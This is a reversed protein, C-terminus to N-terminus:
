PLMNCINSLFTETIDYVCCEIDYNEQKSDVTLTLVSKIRQKYDIFGNKNEPVLEKPKMTALSFIGMNSVASIKVTDITEEFTEQRLKLEEEEIKIKAEFKNDEIFQWITIELTESECSYLRLEAGFASLSVIFVVALMKAIKM